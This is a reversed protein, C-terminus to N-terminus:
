IMCGGGGGWNEDVVYGYVNQGLWLTCLNAVAAKQRVNLWSPLILGPQYPHPTWAWGRENCKGDGNLNCDTSLSLPCVSYGQKMELLFIPTVVNGKFFCLVSNRKYGYCTKICQKWYFLLTWISAWMSVICNERVIQFILPFIGRGVVCRKEGLTSRPVGYLFTSRCTFTTM